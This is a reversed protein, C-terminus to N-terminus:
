YANFKQVFGFQPSKQLSNGRLQRQENFPLLWARTYIIFTRAHVRAFIFPDYKNIIIEGQIKPIEKVRM